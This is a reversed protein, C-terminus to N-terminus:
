VFLRPPGDRDPVPPPPQKPAILPAVDEYPVCYPDIDGSLLREGADHWLIVYGRGSRIEGSLRHITPGFTCEYAWKSNPRGVEDIYWLHARGPRSSPFLYAPPYDIALAMPQGADVDVVTYGYQITAPVVGILGGQELHRAMEDGDPRYDVWPRAPAKNDARCLLFHSKPWARHLARATNPTM